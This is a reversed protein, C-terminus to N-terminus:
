PDGPAAIWLRNFWGPGLMESQQWTQDYTGTALNVAFLTISYASLIIALGIIAQGLLTKAKTVKDDEGGATMWLFGAYVILGFFIIGLLGLITQIINAAIIRPDVPNGLGSSAGAASMQRQIEAQTDATIAQVTLPAVLGIAMASFIIALLIKNKM